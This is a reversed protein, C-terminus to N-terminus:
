CCLRARRARCRWAPRSPSCRGVECQGLCGRWAGSRVLSWGLGRMGVWSDLKRKDAIFSCRSSHGDDKDARPTTSAIVGQDAILRSRARGYYARCDCDTVLNAPAPCNRHGGVPRLADRTPSTGSKQEDTSVRARRRPRAPPYKGLPTLTSPPRLPRIRPLPGGATALRGRRPGAPGAPLDGLELHRYPGQVRGTQLHQQIHDVVVSALAVLM